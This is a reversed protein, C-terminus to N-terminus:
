LEDTLKTKYDDGEDDGEDDGGDAGRPKPCALALLGDCVEERMDLDVLRRRRQRKKKKKVPPAAAAEIHEVLADLDPARALAECLTYVGHTPEPDSEFTGGRKMLADLDGVQRHPAKGLMAIKMRGVRACVRKLLATKLAAAREVRSAAAWGSVLERSEESKLDFLRVLQEALTFCASCHLSKEHGLARLVGIASPPASPPPTTPPASPPLTTPPPAPPPPTAAPPTAAPPPKPTTTKAPAPRASWESLLDRTNSNETMELCGMGEKRSKEDPPVGAELLVRVTDTHRDETGWCARHIPTYGDAHPESVDLGHHVLMKAISARGQFGAGHMPTYGDKEGISTDAGATLLQKVGDDKGMLVAMMLPTQGGEGQDNLGHANRAILKALAAANDSGVADHYENATARPAVLVLLLCAMRLHM